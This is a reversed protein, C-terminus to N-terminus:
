FSLSVLGSGLIYPFWIYDCFSLSGSVIVEFSVGFLGYERSESRRSRM